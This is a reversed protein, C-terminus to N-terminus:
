APFRLGFDKELKERILSYLAAHGEISPHVGDSLYMADRLSEGDAERYVPDLDIFLFHQRIYADTKPWLQGAPYRPPITLWIPVMGRKKITNDIKQLTACNLDTDEDNTGLALLVYHSSKLWILEMELHQTLRVASQGGRGLIVVNDEGIDNQLLAAFRKDKSHAISNGEVFSHGLIILRIDKMNKPYSFFLNEVRMKGQVAYFSISGWAYSSLTLPGIHESKKTYDSITLLFFSETETRKSITISLKEGSECHLSYYRQKETCIPVGGKDVVYASWFGGAEDRGVSFLTGGLAEYKGFVVEYFGNADGSPTIEVTLDFADEYTPIPFYLRNEIGTAYSEAITGNNEITWGNGRLKTLDRFTDQQEVYDAYISLLDEKAKCAILAFSLLSFSLFAGFLGGITKM